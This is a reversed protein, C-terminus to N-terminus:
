ASWRAARRGSRGSRRMTRGRARSSRRRRPIYETRVMDFPLMPLPMMSRGPVMSGEARLEAPVVVRRMTTVTVDAAAGMDM